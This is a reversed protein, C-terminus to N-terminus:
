HQFERHKWYDEGYDVTIDEFASIDRYAQVTMMVRKGITMSEFFASANCSHALYRTWNGYRRPSISAIYDRPKTKAEVALLYVPDDNFDVPCIEGIFEGLIDGEKFNTLARVGTGTLPREVLEVLCGSSFDLVCNCIEPSSCLDCRGHSPRRATPNPKGEWRDADFVPEDIHVQPAREFWPRKIKQDIAQFVNHPHQESMSRMPRLAADLTPIGLHAYKMLLGRWELDRSRAFVEISRENEKIKSILKEWLSPDHLERCARRFGEALMCIALMKWGFEEVFPQLRRLPGRPDLPYKEPDLAHGVVRDLLIASEHYQLRYFAVRQPTPDWRKINRLICVYNIDYYISALVENIRNHIEPEKESSDSDSVPRPKKNAPLDESEAKPKREQRGRNDNATTTTTKSTSKPM